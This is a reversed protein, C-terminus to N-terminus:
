GINYKNKIHKVIFLYMEKEDEGFMKYVYKNTLIKYVNHTLNVLYNIDNLKSTDIHDKAEDLINDIYYGYPIMDDMEERIIKKINM